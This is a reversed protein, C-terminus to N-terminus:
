FLWRFVGVRHLQTHTRSLCACRLAVRRHRVAPLPQLYVTSVARGLQATRLRQLWRHRVQGPTLPLLGCTHYSAVALPWPAARCSVMDPVLVCRGVPLARAHTHHQRARARARTHTHVHTTSTHCRNWRTLLPVVYLKGGVVACAHRARKCLMPAVATWVNSTSDYRFALGSLVCWSCM